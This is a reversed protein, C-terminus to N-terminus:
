NPRRRPPPRNLRQGEFPNPLLFPSIREGRLVFGEPTEGVVMWRVPSANAHRDARAIAVLTGLRELPGPAFGALVVQYTMETGEEVQRRVRLREEVYVFRDAFPIPRPALGAGLVRTAGTKLDRVRVEREAEYVVASRDPSLFAPVVGAVVEVRQALPVLREGPLQVWLAGVAIGAVTDTRSPQFVIQPENDQATSRYTGDGEPPLPAGRSEALAVLAKAVSRVQADEERRLLARILAVDEVDLAQLVTLRVQRSPDDIAARIGNAAQRSEAAFRQLGQVAASRLEEDEATVVVRRLVPVAAPSRRDALLLLANSRVTLDAEPDDVLSVLVPDIEAGMRELRSRDRLFRASPREQALITRVEATLRQPAPVSRSQGHWCAPLAALSLLALARRAFSTRPNM